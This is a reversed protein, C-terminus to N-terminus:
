RATLAEIGIGYIYTGSFLRIEFKTTAINYVVLHTYWASAALYDGSAGIGYVITCTASSKYRVSVTGTNFDMAALYLYQTNGYIFFSYIKSSIQLSDSFTVACPNSSCTLTNTWVPTTSSFAIRYLHLHTTSPDSGLLFFSSDSLILQGNAYQSFNSIQQCQSSLPTTFLYKWISPNPGGKAVVYYGSNDSM